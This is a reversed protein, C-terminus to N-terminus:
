KQIITETYNCKPYTSCALFSGYIGKKVILTGKTCRPCTKGENKAKSELQKKPCHHNICVEQPSSGYSIHVLPYNCESCTKGAPKITGKNPLSITTKCAENACAAYLGYKGKRIIIDAQKCVPCIGLTNSITTALRSSALLDKGITAEQKKFESLLNVLLQKAESLVEQKQKKKEAVKEMEEEFHRTLQEDIISPSYKELTEITKIGFVTAKIQKGEIYGRDYLTDIIQARTAKTGLNRKELEKILSAQSYRVPPQTQKEHATIKKVHVPDHEKCSPMEQEELKIYPAYFQHWGPSITRTGKAIFQENNVDITIEITERKAPEGMTAFFRKVILDYIKTQNKELKSPMIGTPYIAPHAPDTKSGNNPQLATKLVEKALHEYAPNKKIQEVIAKIGITKPLQQSSTRPYSIYGSTYLEQAYELTKKPSIGFVKYAEIQLSTLDFPHPPLQKFSRVAIAAVSGNKNKTKEVIAEAQEKTEIKGKQHWAQIEKKNLIGKLEIEWYPTPVFAQIAKERDVVIKLAPGQVRGISLIKYEGAHKIASTLARSLNIGYLWDLEHRTLGALAQGWNLTPEKQEYSKQLDPATLTSFKMRQADDRKCLYRLVNVGIVEGEVDYDTAITIEDARKALYELAKAYKATFAASKNVKSSEKWEVEFTPYTYQKKKEALSFIHGVASGVVVPKGNVTLEYYPVGDLQKKKAKGQSLAAAIKAAAAPKETIILEYTEKKQKEQNPSSVM